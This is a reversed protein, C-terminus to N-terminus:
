HPCQSTIWRKILKEDVEHTVHKTWVVESVDESAKEREGKDM